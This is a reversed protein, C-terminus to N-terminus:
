GQGMRRHKAIFLPTRSAPTKRMFNYRAIHYSPDFGFFNLHMRELEDKRYEALPKAAEDESRLKRKAALRAPFDGANALSQAYESIKAGDLYEDILGMQAAERAGIPLRRGMVRAVGAEGVRRPLLYTWYESGYLNGMNKYHPNLVVHPTAIVRDAALALFVGGAGANGRMAAVTLHSETTLIAHGLDDIANINRWSEEAPSDAGEIAGLHMGNSWFDGGGMLVIVRTDRACADLYATQLRKCQDTSMAGNYFPFYLYGVGGTEEYRIERWTTEDTGEPIEPIGGLDLVMSAPRKFEREEPTSAP